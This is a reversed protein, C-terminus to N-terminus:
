SQRFSMRIGDNTSVLTDGYLFKTQRGRLVSSGLAAPCGFVICHRVMDLFTVRLAGVFCDAESAIVVPDSVLRRTIM